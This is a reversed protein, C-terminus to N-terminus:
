SMRGTGEQKVADQAPFGTFTERKKGSRGAGRPVLFFPHFSGAHKKIGAVGTKVGALAYGNSRLRQRALTVKAM